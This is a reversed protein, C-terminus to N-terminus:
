ETFISSSIKENLLELIRDSLRTNKRNDYDFLINSKFVTGLSTEDSDNYFDSTKFTKRCDSSVFDRKLKINNNKLLEEDSQNLVYNIDKNNMPGNPSIIEINSCDESLGNRNQAQM